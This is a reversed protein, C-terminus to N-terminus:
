HGGRIQRLAQAALRRSVQLTEDCDKLRVCRQDDAVILARLRQTATPTVTQDM